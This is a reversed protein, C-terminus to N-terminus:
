PLTMHASCVHGIGCFKMTHRSDPWTHYVTPTVLFFNASFALWLSENCVALVAIYLESKHQSYNAVAGSYAKAAYRIPQLTHTTSNRQM